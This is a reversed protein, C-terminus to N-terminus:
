LAAVNSKLMKSIRRRTEGEVTNAEAVYEWDALAHQVQAIIDAAQRIKFLKALDVFHKRQPLLRCGLLAMRHGDPVNSFAGDYWPALTWQGQTNMLFSTNKGHDDCNHGLYNFIIRRYLETTDLMSGTVRLCANLALEADISALRFDTDLLGALTTQHLKDHYDTGTRDFRQIAFWATDADIILRTNPVNIGARRALEAYCFEVRAYDGRGDPVKLLYPQGGHDDLHCHNNDDLRVLYKPFMGGASGAHQRLAAHIQQPRGAVINRASDRLQRYSWAQQMATDALEPEFELAGVAHRGIWALRQLANPEPLANQEFWRLMVQTGWYDPLADAIFGPLGLRPDDLMAPAPRFTGTQLPYLLPSPSLGRSLFDTNWAFVLRGAEDSRALRGAELHEGQLHLYIRMASLPNPTM